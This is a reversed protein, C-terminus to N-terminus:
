KKGRTTPIFVHQRVPSELIAFGQVAMQERIDAVAIRGLGPLRHLDVRLVDALTTVSAARMAKRARPPLDLSSVPAANLYQAAALLAAGSVPINTM